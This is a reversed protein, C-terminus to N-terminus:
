SPPIVNGPARGPPPPLSEPGTRGTGPAPAPDAGPTIGLHREIATLREEITDLAGPAYRAPVARGAARREHEAAIAGEDQEPHELLERTVRARLDTLDAGLTALVQLAM